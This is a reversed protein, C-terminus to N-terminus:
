LTPGLSLHQSRSYKTSIGSTADLQDFARNQTDVVWDGAGDAISDLWLIPIEFPIRRFFEGMHSTLLWAVVLYDIM